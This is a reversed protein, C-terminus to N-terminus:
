RKRAVAVYQGGLPAFRLMPELMRLAGLVRPFVFHFETTVCELDAARQLSRLARPTLLDADRDFAVRSMVWRTGPNFPSNEWVFVLGRPRLARAISRMVATRIDRAIHHFVGNCYIADFANEARLEGGDIVCAGNREAAERAIVRLGEAPEFGTLRAGPFAAVLFPLTTGPGCGFDLVDRVNRGQEQAIRRTVGVRAVAFYEAPEGTFRLGRALQEHYAAGIESFEETRQTM